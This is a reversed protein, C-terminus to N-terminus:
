ALFYLSIRWQTDNWTYREELFFFADFPHRKNFLFFLTKEMGGMSRNKLFGYEIEVDDTDWVKELFLFGEKNFYKVDGEIIKWYNSPM